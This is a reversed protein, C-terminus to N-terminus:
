FSDMMRRGDMPIYQVENQYRENFLQFYHNELAIRQQEFMCREKEKSFDLYLHKEQQEDEDKEEYERQESIAKM